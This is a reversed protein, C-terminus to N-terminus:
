AKLKSDNLLQTLEDMCTVKQSHEEPRDDAMANEYEDAGLLGCHLDGDHLHLGAHHPDTARCGRDFLLQTTRNFWREVNQSWNPPLTDESAAASDTLGAIATRALSILGDFLEKSSGTFTWEGEGFTEELEAFLLQTERLGIFSLEPPSILAPLKQSALAGSIACFVALASVEVQQVEVTISEDLDTWANYNEVFAEARLCVNRLGLESDDDSQLVRAGCAPCGYTQRAEATLAVLSIKRLMSQHGCPPTVLISGNGDDLIDSDAGTHEPCLRAVLLHKISRPPQANWLGAWGAEESNAVTEGYAENLQDRVHYYARASMRQVMHNLLRIWTDRYQHKLLENWQQDALEFEQVPTAAGQLDTRLRFRYSIGGTEANLFSVAEM